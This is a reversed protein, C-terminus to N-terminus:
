MTDPRIYLGEWKNHCSGCLTVLNELRDAEKPDDFDMLPTIHHVHLPSDLDGKHTLCYQCTHGDRELAKRRQKEWESGRYNGYGGEWQASSPGSMNESKWEGLCDRDCFVNESKIKSEYRCILEGCTACEREVKGDGRGEQWESQHANKCEQSCFSNEYNRYETKRKRTEDGCWDCEILVGEISEDHVQAHHSKMYHESAFYSKGCTPCEVGDGDCDNDDSRFHNSVLSHRDAYEEGCDPCIGSSDKGTSDTSVDAEQRPSEVM